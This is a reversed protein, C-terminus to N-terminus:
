RKLTLDRVTTTLIQFGCDLLFKQQANEAADETVLIYALLRTVGGLELWNRAQSMLWGGTSRGHGKAVHLNGIDAIGEHRARQAGADLATDLEIMALEHGDGDVASLRTGAHGVTRRITVGRPASNASPEPLDSVLAMLIRESRGASVFGARNLLKRIHPWQDPIGYIGPAPLSGDAFVLRPHWRQLVALCGDTLAMGAAGADPWFTTDPWCLLWRIGGIDRMGDPTSPSANFRQLHAAAVIRHRQQAVLTIRETVWPDQIFEDPERELNSLLQAVSISAGPIVASVHANALATIQDRDARTFTRIVLDSSAAPDATEPM